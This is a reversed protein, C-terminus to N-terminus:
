VRVWIKSEHKKKESRLSSEHAADGGKAAQGRSSVGLVSM